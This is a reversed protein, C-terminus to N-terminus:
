SEIAPQRYFAAINYRCFRRTGGEVHVNKNRKLKDRVNHMPLLFFLCPHATSGSVVSVPSGDGQVLYKSIFYKKVTENGDALVRSARTICVRM